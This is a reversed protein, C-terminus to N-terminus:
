RAPNAGASFRRREVACLVPEVIHAVEGIVFIAAPGIHTMQRAIEGAQGVHGDGDHAAVAAEAVQGLGVAVIGGAGLLGEVRDHDRGGCSGVATIARCLAGLRATSRRPPVATVSLASFRTRGTRLVRLCGDLCAGAHGPDAWAQGSESM